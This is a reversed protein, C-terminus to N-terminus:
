SRKVWVGIAVGAAVAASLAVLPHRAVLQGGWKVASQVRSACHEEAEAYREAADGTASEHGNDRIRNLQPQFHDIM